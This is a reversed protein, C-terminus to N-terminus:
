AVRNVISYYKSGKNRKVLLRGPMSLAAAAEVILEVTTGIAGTVEAFNQMAKAGDQWMADPKLFESIEFEKDGYEVSYDVRLSQKGAKFHPRLTMSRVDVYFPVGAGVAPKKTLKREPNILEAECSRCHRASPANTTGCHECNKFVFYYDCRGGLPKGGVCRVATHPNPTGCDPCDIYFPEDGADAKNRESVLGAITINDDLAFRDINEGYDLVLADRKGRYSPHLWNLESPPLEWLADFLRCGRGMGQILPRIVEFARMFVVTDICPIDTGVGLANVTVLYRWKGQRAEEIIRPRDGNKGKSTNGTVIATENPPLYSVIENAHKISSAFIIAAMRGDEQMIRIFDAVIARSLREKNLTQNDIDAQKFKGNSQVKVEGLDYHESVVGLRYPVVWGLSSLVHHPLDHIVHKFTKDPGILSYKGRAPVAELGCIRLKPNIATMHRIIKQYTTEEEDSVGSCEDILLLAYEQGFMDLSNAVSMPTGFVVQHGTNKQNLSASFVSCKGGALRYKKASESVLDANPALCLVRKGAKNVVAAILTTIVSKGAATTAVIVGPEATKRMHDIAKDACEQQYNRPVLM